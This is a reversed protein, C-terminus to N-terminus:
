RLFDSIQEKKIIGTTEMGHHFQYLKVANETTLDFNGTISLDNLKRHFLFNQLLYVDKGVCGVQLDRDGLNKECGMEYNDYSYLATLAGWNTWEDKNFNERYVLGKENTTFIQINNTSIINSIMGFKGNRINYLIIGEKIAVTEMKGCDCFCLNDIASWPLIQINIGTLVKYHELIFELLNNKREFTDEKEELYLLLDEIPVKRIMKGGGKINPLSKDLFDYIIKGFFYLPLTNNSKRMKM